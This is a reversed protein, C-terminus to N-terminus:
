SGPPVHMCMYKNHVNLKLIEKSEREREGKGEKEEREGEEERVKNKVFEM